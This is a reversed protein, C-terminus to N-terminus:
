SYHKKRFHNHYMVSDITSIFANIQKETLPKHKLKDLVGNLFESQSNNFNDSHTVFYWFRSEFLEKITMLRNKTNTEILDHEKDM